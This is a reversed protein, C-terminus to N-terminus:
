IEEREVIWAECNSDEMLGNCFKLADEYKDFTMVYEAIPAFENDEYYKQWVEYIMKM